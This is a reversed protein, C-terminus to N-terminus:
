CQVVRQSGGLVPIGYEDLYLAYRGVIPIGYAKVFQLNDEGIGFPWMVYRNMLIWPTSSIAFCALMHATDSSGYRHYETLGETADTLCFM